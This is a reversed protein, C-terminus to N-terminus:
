GFAARPGPQRGPDRFLLKKVGRHPERDFRRWQGEPQALRDAIAYLVLPNAGLGIHSAHVEINESQATEREVSCRWDVVGDSRSFVSSTPVGPTDALMAYRAADIEAEGSVLQYVRWANNAKPNGVFPSGLSIVLRVQDPLMKALERAYVGGLSWGVLSVRRGHLAHLQRVREVCAELVGPRPGRNLGQQWGYTPYAQRAIFRRLVATSFDGAALGPLVLVPHGDGPPLGRLFPLAALVAGMEWPARLEMALRLLGPARHDAAPNVHGAHPLSM